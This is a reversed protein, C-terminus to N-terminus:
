KRRRKSKRKRAKYDPPMEAVCLRNDYLNARWNEDEFPDRSRLDLAPPLEWPVDTESARSQTAILYELGRRVLEAFSIEQRRALSRGAEFLHDPLQIQTRQM